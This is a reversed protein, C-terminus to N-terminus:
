FKPAKRPVQFKFFKPHYSFNQNHPIFKFVNKKINTFITISSLNKFCYSCIKASLSPKSILELLSFKLQFLWLKYLKTQSQRRHWLEHSKFLSSLSPSMGAIAVNKAANAYSYLPMFSKGVNTVFGHIVDAAM